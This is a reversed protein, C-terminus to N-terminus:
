FCWDCACHSNHGNTLPDHSPWFDNGSKANSICADCDSVFKRPNTGGPFRVEVTKGDPLLSVKWKITSNKCFQPYRSDDVPILDPM